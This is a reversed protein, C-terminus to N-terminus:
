YQAQDCQLLCLLLSFNFQISPLPIGADVLGARRLGAGSGKKLDEVWGQILMFLRLEVTTQPPVVISCCLCCWGNCSDSVVKSHLSTIGQVCGQLGVCRQGQRAKDPTGRKCAPTCHAAM